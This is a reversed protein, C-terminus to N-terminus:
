DMVEVSLVKPPPEPPMELANVSSVAFSPLFMMGVPDQTVHIAIWGDKLYIHDSTVTTNSGDLWHVVVTYLSPTAPPPVAQVTYVFVMAAVLLAM